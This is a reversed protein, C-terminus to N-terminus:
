KMKKEKGIASTPMNEVPCQPEGPGRHCVLTGRTWQSFMWSHLLWDTHTVGGAAAAGAATAYNVCLTFSPFLFVLTGDLSDIEKKIRSPTKLPLPQEAPAPQNTEGGARPWWWRM